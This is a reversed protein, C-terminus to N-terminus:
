TSPTRPKHKLSKRINTAVRSLLTRVSEKPVSLEDTDLHWASPTDWLISRQMVAILTVPVEKKTKFSLLNERHLEDWVNQAHRRCIEWILRELIVPNKKTKTKYAIFEPESM